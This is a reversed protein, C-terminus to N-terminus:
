NWLPPHHPRNPDEIPLKIIKKIRRTLFELFGFNEQSFARSLSFDTIDLFGCLREHISSFLMRNKKGQENIM